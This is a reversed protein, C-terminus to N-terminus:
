RWMRGNHHNEAYDDKEVLMHAKAEQGKGRGKCLEMMTGNGCRIADMNMGRLLMWVATLLAAAGQLDPSSNEM